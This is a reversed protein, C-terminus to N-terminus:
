ESALLPTVHRRPECEAAADEQPCGKSGSGRKETGQHPARPAREGFRSQAGADFAEAGSPNGCRPDAFLDLIEHRLDAVLHVDACRGRGLRFRFSLRDM